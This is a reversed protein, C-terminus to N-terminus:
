EVYDMKGREFREVVGENDQVIIAKVDPFAELFELGEDPELISIVSALVDADTCNDAQITVTRPMTLGYGTRPDIIHSYKVSDIQIYRYIDGSTAIAADSLQIVRDDDKLNELIIRWGQKGPPPSGARIDGGGEILVQDIGSDRFISFAEDVAFGKAIGGLDLQMGPKSLLVAGRSTDIEIYGFGVSKAAHEIQGTTPLRDKRGARRWLQSYPGITVDFIGDTRLYWQQSLELIHFLDPNLKVYEGNGSQRSLRNLESDPLYDSMIVNLEDIRGFARQSLQEALAENEVYCIVRFLTGMTRHTFEFRELDRKTQAPLELSIFIILILLNFLRIM